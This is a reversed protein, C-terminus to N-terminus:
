RLCLCWSTYLLIKVDLNKLFVLYPMRKRLQEDQFHLGASGRPNSHAFYCFVFLFLQLDQGEGSLSTASSPYCANHIYKKLDEDTKWLFATSCKKQSWSKVKCFRCYHFVYSKSVIEAKESFVKNSSWWHPIWIRLPSPHNTVALLLNHYKLWRKCELTHM